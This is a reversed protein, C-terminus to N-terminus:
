NGSQWTTIAMSSSVSDTGGPGRGSSWTITPLQRTGRANGSSCPWGVPLRENWDGAYHNHRNSLALERQGHAVNGTREIYKGTNKKYDPRKFITVEGQGHLKGEKPNGKYKTGGSRNFEGQGSRKGEKWRGDASTYKYTRTRQGQPMRRTPSGQELGFGTQSFAQNGDKSRQKARVCACV